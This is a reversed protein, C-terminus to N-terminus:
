DDLRDGPSARDGQLLLHVRPQGGLLPHGGERDTRAEVIDSSGGPDPLELSKKAIIMERVGKRILKAPPPVSRASNKETSSPATVEDAMSLYMCTKTLRRKSSEM